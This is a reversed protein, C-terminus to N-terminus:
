SSAYATLYYTMATGAGTNGMFIRCVGLSGSNSAGGITSGIQWACISSKNYPFVAAAAPTPVNLVGVSQYATDAYTGTLNRNDPGPGFPVPEVIGLNTTAGPILRVTWNQAVDAGVNPVVVGLQLTFYKMGTFDLWNSLLYVRGATRPDAVNGATGNIGVVVPTWKKIVNQGVISVDGPDGVAEASILPLADLQNQPTRGITAM